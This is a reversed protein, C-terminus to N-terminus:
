RVRIYSGNHFTEITATETADDWTFCPVSGGTESCQQILEQDAPPGFSHFIASPEDVNKFKMIVFFSENLTGGGAVFVESWEGDILACNIGEGLNTVCTGSAGAGDAVTAPVGAPLNALATAQKNNGSLQANNGFATGDATSFQGAFNKGSNLATTTVVPDPLLTDGHSRGKLGDKFTDGSTNGQFEVSFSSGSTPTTYAVIVTVSNVPTLAGFSCDLPQGVPACTGQTTTVYVTPANVSGNVEDVLYLASINSPGNNTITVQYGAAAGPSVTPPLKTVNMTWNPPAASAVGAFMSTAVVVASLAAALRRVRARIM